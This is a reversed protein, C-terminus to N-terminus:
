HKALIHLAMDVFDIMGIFLSLDSIAKIQIKGVITANVCELVLATISYEQVCLQQTFIITCVCNALSFANSFRKHHM